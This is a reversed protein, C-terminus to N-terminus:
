PKGPLAGGKSVFILNPHFHGIPIAGRTILIMEDNDYMKEHQELIVICLLNQPQIKTM